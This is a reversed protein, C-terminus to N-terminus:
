KYIRVKSIFDNYNGWQKEVVQSSWGDMLKCFQGSKASRIGVCVTIHGVNKSYPSGAAFGLLCPRSNTESKVDSFSTSWKNNM